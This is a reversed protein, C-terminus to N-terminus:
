DREFGVPRFGFALGANLWRGDRHLLIETARGSSAVRKSHVETETEWLSYLIAVDGSLQAQTHPFCLRILKGGNAAFQKASELIETRREWENQRNNIAIVEKPLIKELTARDNAFWAKWATDRARLLESYRAQAMSDATLITLSALGLAMGRLWNSQM